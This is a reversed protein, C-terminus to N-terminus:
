TQSHGHTPQGKFYLNLANGKESLITLSTTEADNTKAIEEVDELLYQAAKIQRDRRRRLQVMDVAEGDSDAMQDASSVLTFPHFM